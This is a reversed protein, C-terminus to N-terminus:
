MRPTVKMLMPYRSRMTLAFEDEVPTGPVLEFKFHQLLSGILITAERLAFAEGICRRPGAGFPLYTFPMRSKAVEEDFRAPDFKEPEPWYQPLRHITYASWAVHSGKALKYTRPNSDDMSPLTTTSNSNSNTSNSSTTVHSSQITEQDEELTIDETLTRGRLPASPRLRLTELFVARLLKLQVVHADEVLAGHRGVVERLEAAVRADLGPQTAIYYLAFTMLNTTTDHGAMLLTLLQNRIQEDTLPREDGAAVQRERERLMAGLFSADEPSASAITAYVTRDLLALAAEFKRLSASCFLRRLWTPAPFFFRLSLESLLSEWAHFFTADRGATTGVSRGLAILCSVDFAAQHFLLNVDM